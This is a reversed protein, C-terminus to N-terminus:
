VCQKEEEEEHVETCSGILLLGVHNRSIVFGEVAWCDRGFYRSKVCVGFVAVICVQM